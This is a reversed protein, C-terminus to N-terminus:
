AYLEGRGSDRYLMQGYGIASSSRRPTERPGAPTYQVLPAALPNDNRLAYATSEKDVAKVGQTFYGEFLVPLRQVSLAGQHRVRLSRLSAEARDRQLVPPLHSVSSEGARNTHEFPYIKVAVSTVIGFNHGAGKMAWWLDPRTDVTKSPAM